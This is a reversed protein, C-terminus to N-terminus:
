VDREREVTVTVDAFPVRIPAQPKHVTVVVALVGDFTLCAHAMRDALTEILNVPAGEILSHVADAVAGYDVTDVLDDTTAARRTDVTLTVDVTFEQGDIREHEFVGHHGMGRIGTITIRDPVDTEEGLRRWACLM